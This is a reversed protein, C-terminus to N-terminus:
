HPVRRRPDRGGRWMEARAQRNFEARRAEAREYASRAAALENARLAAIAAQLERRAARAAEGTADEFLLEVPAVVNATEGVLNEAENVPAGSPLGAVVAYEVANAAGGIRKSFEGAAEGLVRRREQAASQAVGLWTGYLGGFVGILGTVIPLLVAAWVPM